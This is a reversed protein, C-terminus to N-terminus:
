RRDPEARAFAEMMDRRSPPSLVNRAAFEDAGPQATARILAAAAELDYGTHRLEIGPGLLLWDAGAPGFPMGVSGANVIVIAGLTREFQMHTHGCVVVRADVGAFISRLRQDSTAETFIESDSAPTAHCFLVEGLGDVELSLSLPWREIAQVQDALLQEGAWRTVPLYRAPVGPPEEGRLCALAEREGNGRVFHVPVELALLLALSERPM